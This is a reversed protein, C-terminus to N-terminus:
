NSRFTSQRKILKPVFEIDKHTREDSAMIDFLLQWSTNGMLYGSQDITSLKPNIYQGMAINDYGIVALENPITIGLNQAAQIAGIAMIDNSAFIGDPRNKSSLLKLALEYGGSYRYDGQYVASTIRMGSRLGEKIAQLFGNKRGLASPSLKPGSLHVINKCGIDLLHQTAVKGGIENNMWVAGGVPNDRRDIVVLPVNGILNIISNIKSRSGALIIGDVRMQRLKDLYMKERELNWDYNCLITAFGNQIASDEIGRAIDSYFPNAVDPIMLGVTKTTGSVLGRAVGSPSFNYKEMAKLVIDKTKESVYGSNNIVRSVTSVAVGAEKAVDKITAM